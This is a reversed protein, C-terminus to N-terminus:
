PAARRVGQHDDRQQEALESGHEVGIKYMESADDIAKIQEKAQQADTLAQQTQADYVSKEKLIRDAAAGDHEAVAQQFRRDAEAAQLSPRLASRDAKAMEEEAVEHKGLFVTDVALDDLDKEMPSGYAMDEAVLSVDLVVTVVSAVAAVSGAVEAVGPIPATAVAVVTAADGVDSVITRVDETLNHLHRRAWSWVDNRMGLDAAEGLGTLCRNVESQFEAALQDVQGKIRHLDAIAAAGATTMSVMQSSFPDAEQRRRDAELALPLLGAARAQLMPLAAAYAGIATGARDFSKGVRDLHPQLDGLRQHFAAAADGEWSGGAVAIDRLGASAEQALEACDACAKRVTSIEFVDGPAPDPWGLEAWSGPSFPFSM